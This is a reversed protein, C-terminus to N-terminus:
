SFIGMGGEPTRPLFALCLVPCHACSFTGTVAVLMTAAPLVSAVPFLVIGPALLLATNGPHLHERAAGVTYLMVRVVSGEPKRARIRAASRQDNAVDM